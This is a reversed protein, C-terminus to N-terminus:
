GVVNIYGELMELHKGPMQRFVTLDPASRPLVRWGRLIWYAEEPTVPFPKDDPWEFGTRLKQIGEDM